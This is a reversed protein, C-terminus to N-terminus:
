PIEAPRESSAKALRDELENLYAAAPATDSEEPSWPAYSTQGPLFPGNTIEHVIAVETRPLVTHFRSESMRYCIDGGMGPAGLAVEREIRGADDFIVVTLAGEVMHFSESKEPHRHPRVYTGQVLGILMQHLRDEPNPHVCLRARKSPSALAQEKVFAIERAGITSIADPTYFIGPAEVRLGPLLKM